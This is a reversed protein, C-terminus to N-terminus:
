RELDVGHSEARRGRLISIGFPNLHRPLHCQLSQSASFLAGVRHRDRGAALRLGARAVEVVAVLVDWAECGRVNDQCFGSLVAEVTPGGCPFNLCTVPIRKTKPVGAATRGTKSVGTPRESSAKLYRTPSALFKLLKTFLVAAALRLVMQLTQHELFKSVCGFEDCM